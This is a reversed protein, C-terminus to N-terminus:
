VLLLEERDQIAAISSWPVSAFRHSQYEESTQMEDVSDEGHETDVVVLQKQM